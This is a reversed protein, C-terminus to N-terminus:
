EFHMGDEIRSCNMSLIENEEYIWVLQKNREGELVGLNKLQSM